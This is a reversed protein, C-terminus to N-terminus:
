KALAHFFYLENGPLVINSLADGGSPIKYEWAISALRKPPHTPIIVRHALAM